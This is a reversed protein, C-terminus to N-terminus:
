RLSRRKVHELLLRVYYEQQFSSLETLELVELLRHLRYLLTNKHVFMAASAQNVSRSFEYYMRATDLLIQQDGPSVAASLRQQLTDLYESEDIAMSGMLYRFRVEPCQMDNFDADSVSDLILTRRYGGHVDRLSHVPDGVCIRCRGDLAKELEAGSIQQNRASRLAILRDDVIGWVDRRPDLFDRPLSKLLEELQQSLFLGSLPTFLWVTVPLEMEINRSKMLAAANETTTDTMKLLSLLCHTRLQGEALNPQAMAELQYCKEAYKELLHALYQIEMPDGFIGVAGIVAGNMRLPMNCGEKAGTYFPVQDKRITVIKGTRVADLAGQHFTGVRSPDSSAIIIGKTDMVNITRGGLMESAGEVLQGALEELLM